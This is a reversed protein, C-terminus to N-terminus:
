RSDYGVVSWVGTEDQRVLRKLYVQEIQGDAVAVVAEVGNNAVQEFSTYPIKPQGFLSKASGTGPQAADPTKPVSFTGPPCVQENVFIFSIYMPDVGAAWPFKGSDAQLQETAASNLDAPVKVRAQGVLDAAPDPLTLDPAIQRALVVMQDMPSGDVDLDIGQQRWLLKSLRTWPIVELTGGAATGLMAGNDFKGGVPSQKAVTESIIVGGYDLIVRGHYAFIRNPKQQPLLPTLGSIDAAQQATAVLQKPDDDIVRYGAPPSYAFIAPDIRVNPEFSLFTSTTQFGGQLVDTQLQIPLNTETDVWMFYPRDEPPSIQLKTTQHGAIVESGVITHPYQLAREAEYQLEGLDPVTSTTLLPPSAIVEVTKEQPQVQWYQEGNNVTLTGDYQPATTDDQLIADKGQEWWIEQRVEKVEKGAANVTLTELVGHYSTVQSVAQQMAYAIDRHGLGAGNVLFVLLIAGAIVVAAAPLVWRRRCWRARKRTQEGLKQESAAKTPLDAPDRSNISGSVAEALRQPYGPDPLALEKLSRVLRATALLRALEPNDPSGLHKEPNHEENLADIYDSLRDEPTDM